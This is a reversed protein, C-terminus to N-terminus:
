RCVVVDPTAVGREPSGPRTVCLPSTSARLPGRRHPPRLHWATEVGAVGPDRGPSWAPGSTGGSPSGQSQCRKIADWSTPPMSLARRLVGSRGRHYTTSHDTPRAPDDQDASRKQRHHRVPDPPHGRDEQEDGGDDAPQPRAHDRAIPNEQRLATTVPRPQPQKRVADQPSTSTKPGHDRPTGAAAAASAGEVMRAHGVPTRVDSPLHPSSGGRSAEGSVARSTASTHGAASSAEPDTGTRTCSVPRAPCTASVNRPRKLEHPLAGEAQVLHLQPLGVGEGLPQCAPAVDVSGRLKKCAEPRAASGRPRSVRSAPPPATPRDTVPTPRRATPRRHWRTGSAQSKRGQQGPSPVESVPHGLM